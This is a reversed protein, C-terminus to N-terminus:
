IELLEKFLLWFWMSSRKRTITETFRSLCMGSMRKASLRCRILKQNITKWLVIMSYGNIICRNNANTCVIVIMTRQGHFSQTTNTSSKLRSLLGCNLAVNYWCAMLWFLITSSAGRGQTPGFLHRAYINRPILFLAYKWGIFIYTNLYNSLM